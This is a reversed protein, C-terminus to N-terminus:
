KKWVIARPLEDARFQALGTSDLTYANNKFNVRRNISDSMNFGAGIMLDADYEKYSITYGINGYWHYKGQADLIQNVGTPMTTDTADITYFCNAVNVMDASVIAGNWVSSDYYYLVIPHKALYAKLEDITTINPVKVELKNEVVHFCIVPQTAAISWVNDASWIIYNSFGYGWRESEDAPLIAGPNVISARYDGAPVKIFATFYPNNITKKTIGNYTGDPLSDNDMLFGRWAAVGLEGFTNKFRDYSMQVQGRPTMMAKCQQILEM